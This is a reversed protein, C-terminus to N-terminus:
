NLYIADTTTAYAGSGGPMANAALLEITPLGSFDSGGWQHILEQLASPRSSLNLAELAAVELLGSAAWQSLQERWETILGYIKDLGPTTEM